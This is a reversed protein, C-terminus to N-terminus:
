LATKYAHLLLRLALCAGTVHAREEICARRVFHMHVYRLWIFGKYKIGFFSLIFDIHFYSVSSSPVVSLFLFILVGLSLCCALLCSLFFPLFFARVRWAESAGLKGVLSPNM